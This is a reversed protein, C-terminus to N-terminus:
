FCQWVFQQQVNKKCYCMADNDSFFRLEGHRQSNCPGVTIQPVAKMRVTNVTVSGSTLDGGGGKEVSTLTYESAAKYLTKCVNDYIDRCDYLEYFDYGNGPSTVGVGSAYQPPCDQKGDDIDCSLKLNYAEQPIERQYFGGSGSVGVGGVEGTFAYYYLFGSPAEKRDFKQAAAYYRCQGPPNGNPPLPCSGKYDGQSYSSIFLDYKATPNNNVEVFHGSPSSCDRGTLSSDCSMKNSVRESGWYQVIQSQTAVPPNFDRPLEGYEDLGSGAYYITVSQQNSGLIRVSGDVQLDGNGIHLSAVPNSTGIGVNGDSYYIPKMGSVAVGDKWQGGGGGAASITVEGTGGPTAPNSTITINSGGIIKSVGAASTGTGIEKWSNLDNPNNSYNLKGSRLQIGAAPLWQTNLFYLAGSMGDLSVGGLSSTAKVKGLVYLDSGKTQPTTGTDLPQAPMGGTPLATPATYVNAAAVIGYVQLGVLLALVLSLYFFPNKSLSKM